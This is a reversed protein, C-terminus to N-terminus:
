VAGSQGNQSFFSSSLYLCTGWLKCCDTVGLSGPLGVQIARQGCFAYWAELASHHVHLVLSAHGLCHVSSYSCLRHLPAVYESTSGTSWTRTCSYLSLSEVRNLRVRACDQAFKSPQAAWLLVGTNLCFMEHWSGLSSFHHM